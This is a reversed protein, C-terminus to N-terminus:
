STLRAGAPEPGVSLPSPLPKDTTLPRYYLRPTARHNLCSRTTEPGKTVPAEITRGHETEVDGSTSGSTRIERM